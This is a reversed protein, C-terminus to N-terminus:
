PIVPADPGRYNPVSRRGVTKIRLGRWEPQLRIHTVPKEAGKQEHQQGEHQHHQRAGVDILRQKRGLLRTRDLRTAVERLDLPEIDFDELAGRGRDHLDGAPRAPGRGPEATLL